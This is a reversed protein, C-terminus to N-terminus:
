VAKGENGRRLIQWVRTLTEEAPLGKPLLALAFKEITKIEAETMIKSSHIIVPIFATEPNQKLACLADIGNVFPMVVDLFIVEPKQTKALTMGTTADRAEYIICGAKYLTHRLMYCSAEDDDVILARSFPLPAAGGLTASAPTVIKMAPASQDYVLPIEATFISGAGPTSELSVMGGLLETLKKSLPLGLGTGKVRKQIPNDLQGFEEFIRAQDEPAIGIGTDRVYFRVARRQELFSAGVRIEGAETFKLANSIFNRLVQAVKGEDTTLPPIAEPEDFVLTVEPNQLLPRFMGRLTGFMDEVTFSEVRVTVKGAEVKALDLLDNVLEQLNEMAKRLLRVQKEQEPTLDGDTKDLLLRTLSLASNVPTRFEHSMNSLFRTKIEDARRLQEAREDLEAYLAVVGRNTEGLEQNLQDLEEQRDHLRQLTQLLEHNQQQLENVTSPTLEALKRTLAGIDKAEQGKKVPLMKWLTVTTGKGPETEIESADVLKRSGALGVGMGTQSQYQGSLIERLNVIGPGSDRVVIRLSLRGDASDDVAFEAKGGGGYVFANRALESVATAIRTQEVTDLGLLGAIQRARQRAAVIDPESKIACTLISRSM